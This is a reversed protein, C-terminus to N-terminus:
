LGGYAARIAAVYRDWGYSPGRGSAPRGALGSACSPTPSCGSSRRGCRPVDGAPVLLGTEGDVVLDQLGGVASAVVPRGAAMAELCAYGFGERRSPCAVVAAQGYLELLEDHPVM